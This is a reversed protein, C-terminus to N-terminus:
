TQVNNRSPSLDHANRKDILVGPKRLEEFDDSSFQYFSLWINTDTFINM